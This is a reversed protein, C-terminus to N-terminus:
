PDLLSRAAEDILERVYACTNDVSFRRRGYHRDPFSVVLRACRVKRVICDSVSSLWLTHNATFNERISLHVVIHFLVLTSESYEQTFQRSLLMATRLQADAYSIEWTNSTLDGADTRGHHVYPLDRTWRAYIEDRIERPLAFLGTMKPRTPSPVSRIIVATQTTTSSLPTSTETTMGLGPSGHPTRFRPHAKLFLGFNLTSMRTHRAFRFSCEATKSKELEM